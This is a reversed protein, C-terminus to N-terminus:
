VTRRNDNTKEVNFSEKGRFFPLIEIKVSISGKVESKKLQLTLM